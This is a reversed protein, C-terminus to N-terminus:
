SNLEPTKNRLDSMSLPVIRDKNLEAIEPVLEEIESAMKASAKSMLKKFCSPNQSAVDEEVVAGPRFRAGIFTEKICVYAM